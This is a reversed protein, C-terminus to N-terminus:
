YKDKNLGIVYVSVSITESHLNIHSDGQAM